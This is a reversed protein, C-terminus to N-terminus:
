DTRPQRGRTGGRASVPWRPVGANRRPVLPRAAARPMSPAGETEVYVVASVTRHLTIACRPEYPPQLVRPAGVDHLHREYEREEEQQREGDDVERRHEVRIERELVAHALRRTEADGAVDRGAQRALVRDALRHAVRGRCEGDLVAVEGERVHRRAARAPQRTGTVRAVHA